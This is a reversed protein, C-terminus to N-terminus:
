VRGEGEIPESRVAYTCLAHEVRERTPLIVRDEPLSEGIRLLMPKKPRDQDNILYGQDIAKSVRRYVASQDLKLRKVLQGTTAYKEDDRATIEKVVEVTERTAKSVQAGITDSILDHVLARVAAYDDLTAVIEGHESVERGARHLLTHACTLALVVGFDRRLRVAVPPVLEALVSAFPVAVRREGDALWYQLQHWRELDVVRGNGAAIAKMVRKTQARTDDIQVSILRTENEAHLSVQTTSTILGTPGEREVMVSEIGKTTVEVTGHRLCGESLLTRIFYSAWEGSMGAAEHLVLMRHDIPTKDYVLFKESLGSLRVFAEDPFFKLVRDIAASKGAASPGKAALSVIRDLLRSVVVLYILMCARWEGAHGLARLDEIFRSLIDPESALPPAKHVLARREPGECGGPPSHDGTAQALWADAVKAPASVAAKGLTAKELRSRAKLVAILRERLQTRALLDEPPRVTGLAGWLADDNPADAIKDLWEAYDSM